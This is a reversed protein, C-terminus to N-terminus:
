LKLFRQVRRGLILTLAVTAAIGAGFLTWELPGGHVLAGRGASGVYVKLLLGPFMGATSALAYDSLKVRTVGLFYSKIGSPMVPSLRVLAVVKWAERSVARDVAKFTENRHALKEIRARVVYRAILFATVASITAALVAVLLGWGLGFVAGAVVPFIWAPVLLLSAVITVGLFVLLGAAVSMGEIADELGDAWDTVPLVAAGVIALAVVAAVVLWKM